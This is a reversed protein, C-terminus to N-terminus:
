SYNKRLTRRMVKHSATRPLSDIIVVDHIKFLPNLNEKIARQMCEKLFPIDGERMRPDGTNVHSERKQPFSAKIVVYIVLLSPGGDKPSVAIAATEQIGDVRNLVREIEASSVKIGGLNMTDDARGHARYYGNPLKEIQDGHRRGQAGQPTDAFYVKHHDQNLLKTSLGISPPILFVEGNNTPKGEEDLIVFDIGLAPTTFTAPIAPQLLTGTLYGGGIETGGCYEIIPRNGAQAMLWAYDDANSCEGTSSFCKISSWDIGAASGNERWAKVISPVVGLMTVKTKEVFHCFERSTPSGDFLAIAGKNILTAYILWPGMMWGLNTPWAVVDDPQIDHHLYGDSACKIPTTHTWPIAKPEGTTGSSFLINTEDEPNCRVVEFGSKTRRDAQGNRAGTPASLPSCLSASFRTKFDSRLPMSCRSKFDLWSVDQKRLSTSLKESCPIVIAMPADADIVKQYLPFEKGSREIVDQTFIAKAEAIQLRTKIEHSAFSDAISVVCMGAKIIGLYISVADATMPM